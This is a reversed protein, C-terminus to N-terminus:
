RSPRCVLAFQLTTLIPAGRYIAVAIITAVLVLVLVLALVILYNGTKM